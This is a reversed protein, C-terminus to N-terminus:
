RGVPSPRTEIAVDRIKARRVEDLVAVATGLKAKGDSRLLVRHVAFQRKYGNLKLPLEALTIPEPDAPGVRWTIMGDAATQVFATSDEVGSPEGTRPLGAELVRVRHLTLTFLVFTALLFFIVDILPIIEVRAKKPGAVEPELVNM